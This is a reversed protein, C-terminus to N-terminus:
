ALWSERGYSSMSPTIRADELAVDVVHVCVSSGKLPAKHLSRDVCNLSHYCVVSSLVVFAMMMMAIRWRARSRNQRTIEHLLVREAVQMAVEFVDVSRAEALVNLELRMM